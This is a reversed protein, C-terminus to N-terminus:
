TAAFLSYLNFSDLLIRHLAVNRPRFLGHSAGHCVSAPSTSTSSHFLHPHSLPPAAACIPGLLKASVLCRPLRRTYINGNSINVAVCFLQHRHRAM